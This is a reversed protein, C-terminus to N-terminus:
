RERERERKTWMAKERNRERESESVWMSVCSRVWLSDREKERMDVWREGKCEIENREWRGKEQKKRTKERNGKRMRTRKM